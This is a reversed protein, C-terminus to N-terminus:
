VALAALTLALTALGFYGVVLAAVAAGRGRQGTRAIQRLAVHGLVVAAISGLWGWWLVGCIVGAVAYSNTRRTRRVFMPPGAPPSPTVDVTLRRLESCWRAGYAAAIRGELEDADLRGELAAVRLWEVAAERDADSARLDPMPPEFPVAMAAPVQAVITSM